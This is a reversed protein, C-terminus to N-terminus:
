FVGFSARSGGDAKSGSHKLRMWLVWSCPHVISGSPPSEEGQQGKKRPKVPYSYLVGKGRVCVEMLRCIRSYIPNILEKKGWSNLTEAPWLAQLGELIANYFGM